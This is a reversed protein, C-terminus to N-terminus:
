ACFGITGTQKVKHLTAPLSFDANNLAFNMETPNETQGFIREAYSLVASEALNRCFRGNGTEPDSIANTCINLVSQRDSM